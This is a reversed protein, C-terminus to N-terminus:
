NGSGGTQQEATSIKKFEVDLHSDLHIRQINFTNIRSSMRTKAKGNCKKETSLIDSYVNLDSYRIEYLKM